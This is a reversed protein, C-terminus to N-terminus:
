RGPATPPGYRSPRFRLAARLRVWEQRATERARLRRLLARTLRALNAVRMSARDRVGYWKRAYLLESWMLMRERYEDLPRDAKWHRITLEPLYAVEWGARRAETCLDVEEYYLFFREDFRGGAELVERRILMFAGMVWDCRTEREYVEEDWVWVPWGTRWALWSNAPSPERGVSPLFRGHQDVQRPAFV